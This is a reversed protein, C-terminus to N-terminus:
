YPDYDGEQRMARYYRGVQAEADFEDEPAPDTAKGVGFEEACDYCCEYCGPASERIEVGCTACTRPTEAPNTTSQCMGTHYCM